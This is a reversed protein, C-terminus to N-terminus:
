RKRDKGDKALDRWDSSVRTHGPSRVASFVSRAASSPEWIATPLFVAGVRGCGCVGGEGPMSLAAPGATAAASLARSATVPRPLWRRDVVHQVRLRLPNFIARLETVPM